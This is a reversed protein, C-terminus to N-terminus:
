YHRNGNSDFRINWWAGMERKNEETWNIMYHSIDTEETGVSEEILTKLQHVNGGWELTIDSPPDLIVPFATSDDVGFLEFLQNKTLIEDIHV